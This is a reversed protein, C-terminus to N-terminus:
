SKAVVSRLVTSANTSKRMSYESKSRVVNM